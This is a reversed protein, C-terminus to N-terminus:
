LTIKTTSKVGNKDILVANYLGSALGSADLVYQHAGKSENFLEQQKIIKGSLDVLLFQYTSNPTEATIEIFINNNNIPSFVYTNSNEECNEVAIIESHLDNTEGEVILRYYSQNIYPNRDVFNFTSENNLANATGITTFNSGDLSKQVIFTSNETTSLEWSLHISSNDCNGDFYNLSLPLPHDYDTLTWARYFESAAINVGTVSRNGATGTVTGWIGASGSHSGEWHNNSTNFRQAGLNTINLLNPAGTETADDNFGFSLQVAPKTTYNEADIIWFRDVVWNKNDLNGSSSQFHTVGSAWPLNDDDTEYTSFLIDGSGVGAATTQVTLPIKQETGGVGTTFPVTFAGTSTGINWKVYNYEDESIINGGSGQTIIGNANTQNVVVYVPTGATGGNLVVYPNDKLVLAHNQANTKYLGLLLAIYLLKYNM